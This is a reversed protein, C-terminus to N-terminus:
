KRFKRGSFALGLLGAGFLLMSAPEPVPEANASASWAFNDGAAAESTLIWSGPTDDFNAASMTGLGRVTLSNDGNGTGKTYSVSDMVFSFGAVSWLPASVFSEFQFNNVNGIYGALGTFSGSTSKVDFTNDSANENYGGFDIGTSLPITTENYYMDVPTFTGGMSLGGTIPTAMASGALACVGAVTILATKLFIKAGRQKSHTVPLTLLM